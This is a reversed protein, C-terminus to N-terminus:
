NKYYDGAGNTAVKASDAMKTSDAMKVSDASNIIIKSPVLVNRSALNPTSDIVKVSDAMKASDLAAMSQYNARNHNFIGWTLIIAIIIIASVILIVKNQKIFHGSNFQDNSPKTQTLKESVNEASEASQIINARPTSIWIGAISSITFGLQACSIIFPIFLNGWLPVKNIENSYSFTILLYYSFALAISTICGITIVRSYNTIGGLSRKHLNSTSVIAVIPLIVPSASLLLLGASTHYLTKIQMLAYYAVGTIIGGTIGNKLVNKTNLLKNGKAVNKIIYFLYYLSGAIMLLMGTGLSADEGIYNKFTNIVDKLAFFYIILVTVPLNTALAICVTTRKERLTKQYADYAIIASCVPPLLLFCIVLLHADQLANAQSILYTGNITPVLSSLSSHVDVWPMFFGIFILGSAILLLNSQNKFFDTSSEAVPNAPTSVPTPNESNHPREITEAVTPTVKVAEVTEQQTSAPAETALSTLSNTQQQTNLGLITLIISSILTLWFGLGFIKIIDGNFNQANSAGIKNIIIVAIIFLTIIPLCFLISKQIPYHNKNFGASYIIIIGVIPIIVALYRIPSDIIQSLNGFVIDWASVSMFLTIWPMFFAAVLIAAFVLSANKTNDPKM